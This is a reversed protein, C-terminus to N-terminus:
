DSVKVPPVQFVLLKLRVTPVLKLPAPAKVAAAASVMVTPPLQFRGLKVAAELVTNNLAAPVEVMLPFVVKKLRVTGELTAPLVTCNVASVVCVMLPVNETVPTSPVRVWRTLVLTPTRQPRCM